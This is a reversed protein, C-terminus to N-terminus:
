ISNYRWPKSKERNETLPISLTNFLAKKLKRKKVAM